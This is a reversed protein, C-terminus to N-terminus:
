HSIGKPNRMVLTIYFFSFFIMIIKEKVVVHHVYIYIYIYINGKAILLEDYIDITSTLNIALDNHM